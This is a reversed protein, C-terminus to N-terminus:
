VEQDDTGPALPVIVWMVLYVLIAVGGLLAFLVFFLRIWTPDVGFYEALGGCIGALMREKDSRYLKKYSVSKDNM